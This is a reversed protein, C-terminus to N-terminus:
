RCAPRGDPTQGLMPTAPAVVRCPSNVSIPIAALGLEERPVPKGNLPLEGGKVEVIDGPLGIVRKILDESQRPHRFVVVDGRHPLHALLRGSIPPFGFPFSTRSYGYPWKARRTTCAYSTATSAIEAM